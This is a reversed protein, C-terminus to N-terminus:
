DTFYFVHSNGPTLLVSGQDSQWLFLVGTVTGQDSPHWCHLQSTLKTSPTVLKCRSKQDQHMLVPCSYNYQTTQLGCTHPINNWTNRHNVQVKMKSQSVYGQFSAPHLTTNNRPQFSVPHLPMNNRPQTAEAVMTMCIVSYITPYVTYGSPLFAWLWVESRWLVWEETLPRRDASWWLMGTAASKLKSTTHDSIAHATQKSVETYLHHPWNLPPTTLSRM